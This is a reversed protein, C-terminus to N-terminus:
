LDLASFAVSFLADAVIVMFISHVVSRTTQRGVSDAGGKTQFGQFCGVTVIIAAFVPAKGIGILLDTVSVTKVFRDLFEATGVDLQIHAMLMGGLVGFLDAFLTLLPLTILLALVKPLVLMDLPAIGITRMADIEETVAMTGIQAAYASGSRGAVIIATILPAFERLMSLAVLDVVFINAGYLRLQAAGQYAVVIGLLFSLLGVIPLADVGASRINYLIPRWRIRTPHALWGGLAFTCEGIFALLACGQALLSAAGQGLSELRSLPHSPIPAPGPASEQALADFLRAFEPRLQRLEVGAAGDRLRRLLTQLIWAGATDLAEIGSADIVWTEGAPAALADLESTLRGMGLATWSGSLALVQPTARSMAAPTTTPKM